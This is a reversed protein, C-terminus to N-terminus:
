VSGECAVHYIYAIADANWKCDEYQLDQEVMVSDIGEVIHQHRIRNGSTTASEIGRVDDGAGLLIEEPMIGQDVLRGLEKRERKFIRMDKKNYWTAEMEQSTYDALHITEIIQVARRLPFRVQKACATTSAATTSDSSLRRLLCGTSNSNNKAISDGDCGREMELLQVKECAINAAAVITSVAQEDENDDHLSIDELDKMDEDSLSFARESKIDGEDDCQSMRLSSSSALLIAAPPM